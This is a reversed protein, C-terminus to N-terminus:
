GTDEAAMRTCRASFGEIDGMRVAVVLKEDVFTTPFLPHPKSLHTNPYSFNPSRLNRSYVRVCMGVCTM